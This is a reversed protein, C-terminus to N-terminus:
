GRRRTVIYHGAAGIASVGAFLGAVSAAGTKPLEKAVPKVEQKPQEKKPQEKPQEAPPTPCNVKMKFHVFRKNATSVGVTGINVGAQTVGDPLDKMYNGFADYLKTSGSVYTLGQATSLNVTATDGAVSPHANDARVSVTSTNNTEVASQFAAKVTVNALSETPGVNHVRVWYELEDCKDANVPDTFSTNKTVNKVRYINGSEIASQVTASATGSLAIAFTAAFATIMSLTKSM